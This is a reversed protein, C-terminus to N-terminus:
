LLFVFLSISHFLKIQCETPFNNMHDLILKMVLIFFDPYIYKKETVLHLAYFLKLSLCSKKSREGKLFRFVM